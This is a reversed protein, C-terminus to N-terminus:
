NGSNLILTLQQKRQLRSQLEKFVLRQDPSLVSQAAVIDRNSIPAAMSSILNFRSQNELRESSELNSLLQTMAEFQSDSLPTSTYQLESSLISVTNRPAIMRQYTEFTLMDSAGLLQGIQSQYDGIVNAVMSNSWAEKLTLGQYHAATVADQLAIARDVLLNKLFITKEVPLGLQSFLAGFKQDIEIGIEGRRILTFLSKAEASSAWNPQDGSNVASSKSRIDLKELASLEEDMRAATDVKMEDRMREARKIRDAISKREVAGLLGRKLNRLESFLSCDYIALAFAAVAFIAQVSRRMSPKALPM